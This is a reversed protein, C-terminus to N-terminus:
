SAIRFLNSSNIRTELLPSVAGFGEAYVIEGDKTVAVSLGPINFQAMYAYAVDSVADHEEPQLMGELARSPSTTGVVGPLALTTASWASKLIARRTVGQENM